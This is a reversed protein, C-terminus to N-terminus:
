SPKADSSSRASTLLRVAQVRASKPSYGAQIAAQTGNFDKVFEELHEDAIEKATHQGYGRTALTVAMAIDPHGAEFDDPRWRV